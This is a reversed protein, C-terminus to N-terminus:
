HSIPADRHRLLFHSPGGEPPVFSQDLARIIILEFVGSFLRMCLVENNHGPKTGCSAAAEPDRGAGAYAIRDLSVPNFPQQPLEETKVFVFEVGRNIDVDDGPLARHPEFIGLHALLDLPTNEWDM